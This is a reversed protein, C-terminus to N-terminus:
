HAKRNMDDSYALGNRELWEVAIEKYAEDRFTFWDEEIGYRNITDKFRRFAGSGRIKDLLVASIKENPFSLCFREMFEYEHIDFQSPLKLYDDSHLAKEAEQLIEQQWGPYESLDDGDEVAGLDEDTFTVLEGTTKNLYAHREDTLMQLEDVLDRLSVLVDM